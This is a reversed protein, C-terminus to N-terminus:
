AADSAARGQGRRRRQALRREEAVAAAVARRERRRREVNKIQANCHPCFLMEPKRIIHSGCSSRLCSLCVYRGFGRCPEGSTRVKDCSGQVTSMFVNGEIHRSPGHMMGSDGRGTDSLYRIRVIQRRATLANVGRSSSPRECM